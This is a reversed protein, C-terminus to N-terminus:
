DNWFGAQKLAATINQAIATKDDAYEIPFDRNFKIEIYDAITAQMGEPNLWKTIDAPYEAEPFRKRLLKQFHKYVDMTKEFLHGGCSEPTLFAETSGYVGGWSRRHTPESVSNAIREVSVALKEAADTLREISRGINPRHYSSRDSGLLALLEEWQKDSKDSM